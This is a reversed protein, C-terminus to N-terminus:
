HDELVPSGSIAAHHSVSNQRLSGCLICCGMSTSLHSIRPDLRPPRTHARVAKVQRWFRRLESRCNPNLPAGFGDSKVRSARSSRLGEGPVENLGRAGKSGGGVAFQFLSVRRAVLPPIARFGDSTRGTRVVPAALEELYM